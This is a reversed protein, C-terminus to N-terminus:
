LHSPGSSLDRYNWGRGTACLARLLFPKYSPFLTPRATMLHAALSECSAVITCFRPAL